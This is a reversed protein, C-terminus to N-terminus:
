KRDGVEILVRLTEESAKKWSFRELNEYGKDIMERTDENELRYFAKEIEEASLPEVIIAGDGAVEPMASVNSTVLPCGFGQAELIPIGFGEYLSPFILVLSNKYLEVL